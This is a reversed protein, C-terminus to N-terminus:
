TSEGATEVVLFGTQNLHRALRNALITDPVMIGAAGVTPDSNSMECVIVRSKGIDVVTGKNITLMWKVPRPKNQERKAQKKGESKGYGWSIFWVILLVLALGGLDIFLM